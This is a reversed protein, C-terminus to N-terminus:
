ATAGTSVARERLAATPIMRTWLRVPWDATVEMEWSVGQAAVRLSARVLSEDPLRRPLHRPALLVFPEKGLWLRDHVEGFPTGSASHRIEVSEPVRVLRPLLAAELVLERVPLGSARLSELQAAAGLVREIEDLCPEWLLFADPIEMQLDDYAAQVMLTKSM